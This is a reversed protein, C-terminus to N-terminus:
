GKVNARFGLRAGAFKEIPPDGGRRAAVRSFVRAFRFRASREDSLPFRKSAV